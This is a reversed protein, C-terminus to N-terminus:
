SIGHLTEVIYDFEKKTMDPRNPLGFVRGALSDAVPLFTNDEYDKRIAPQLYLPRKYRHRVEIGKGRLYAILEGTEMGLVAELAYVPYTFWAHVDGKSARPRILWKLDALAKNYRKAWTRRIENMKDLKRLQVIGMAAAIETMRYNYGIFEHTDRDSMGHNRFKRIFDAYVPSDTIVMGGEGTTMNKTAFFSYCGM